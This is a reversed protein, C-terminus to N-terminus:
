AKFSVTHMIIHSVYYEKILAIHIIMEGFVERIPSASTMLNHSLANSNLHALQVDGDTIFVELSVSKLTLSEM